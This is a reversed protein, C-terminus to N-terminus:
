MYTLNYYLQVFICPRAPYLNHETGQLSLITARICSPLAFFPFPPTSGPDGLFNSIRELAKCWRVLSITAKGDCFFM